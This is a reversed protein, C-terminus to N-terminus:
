TVGFCERYSQLWGLYHMADLHYFAGTTFGLAGTRIVITTSVTWVISIRGRFRASSSRRIFPRRLERWFLRFYDLAGSFLASSDRGRFAARELAVRGRKEKISIAQSSSAWALKFSNAELLFHFDEKQANKADWHQSGLTSPTM